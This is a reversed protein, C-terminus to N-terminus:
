NIKRYKENLDKDSIEFTNNNSYDLMENKKENNKYIIRILKYSNHESNIFVDGIKFEVSSM